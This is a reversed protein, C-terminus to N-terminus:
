ARCRDLNLEHLHWKGGSGWLWSHSGADYRKRPYPKPCSYIVVHRQVGGGLFSGLAIGHRKWGSVAKPEQAHCGIAHAVLYSARIMCLPPPQIFIALFFLSKSKTKKKKETQAHTSRTASDKCEVLDVVQLGMEAVRDAM